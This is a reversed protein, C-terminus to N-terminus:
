KMELSTYGTQRRMMNSRKAGFIQGFNRATEADPVENEFHEKENNLQQYFRGENNRFLRNQQYQSIRQQYRTIKGTKAKIKQHIEEKAVQPGRRRM